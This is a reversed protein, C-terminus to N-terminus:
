DRRDLCNRVTQVLTVAGFPKRVFNVGEILSSTARFSEAGCGSLFITKLGPKERKLAEALDEASIELLFPDVLLLQIRDM